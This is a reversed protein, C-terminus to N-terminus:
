DGAVDAPSTADTTSGIGLQGDSNSGWCKLGGGSVIACTYSFGLAIAIASVGPPLLFPITVFLLFM